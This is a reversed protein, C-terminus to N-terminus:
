VKWDWKKRWLFFESGTAEFNESLKILGEKPVVSRLIQRREKLPINMLNIGNLWLIDFLYFALQGDAESRWTQLNGFDPVGKDNLVVIEGDVVANLGSKKLADYVPYFKEDFSKNNRSKLAAEGKNVYGIARYGDWKVEYMWGPEDLPEDVLTALMPKIDAPFESKKGKKLIISIEASPAAVPPEKTKM